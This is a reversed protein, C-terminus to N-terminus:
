AWYPEPGFAYPAYRGDGRAGGAGVAAGVGAPGVGAPGVGAPGVGAGAPGGDGPAGVLGLQALDGAVNADLGKPMAFALLGGWPMRGRGREDAGDAGDGGGELDRSLSLLSSPEGRAGHAAHGHGHTGGGAAAGDPLPPVGPPGAEPVGANRAFALAAARADPEIALEHQGEQLGGSGGAAQLAAARDLTRRERDIQRRKRMTADLMGTRLDGLEARWSAWIREQHAARTRELESAVLTQWALTQRRAHARRMEILEGMRVLEPHTGQYLLLAEKAAESMREEYLRDRLMAFDVEIGTLADLAEQRKVAM